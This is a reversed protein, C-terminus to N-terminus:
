SSVPIGAGECGAIMGEHMWASLWAAIPIEEDTEQEALAECAEGLTKKELLTKIFLFQLPTLAECRVQDKRRSVLIKQGSRKWESTASTKGERVEKAMKWIELVPWESVFLAASPQFLLKADEWAEAPVKAWASPEFAPGDFAHFSFAIQRELEALDKLYPYAKSLAHTELFEPFRAGVHSLNYDQSPYAKAYDKALGIFGKEGAIVHVAEYVESLSEHTRAIYGDAYIGLREEGSVGGQPNLPSAPLKSAESSSVQIRSKMWKQIEGLFSRDRASAPATWVPTERTEPRVGEFADYIRRATKCEELLRPWEPIHEDWEVLTSVQGCRKLTERYLNWVADIVPASHTDFLFTGMDTHGALHIQGIKEPPVSNVYVLPDFQHNVSNVYINNVDLLIGCGSRRAIESLFVWEPMESEKYTVYTSVNELLIERGLVEQVKEVRRVVHRVSEETFPLPLLDHLQNGGVGSWCLHDSVIFPQIRDALMKLRRLYKESLPDVSGISLSVGHLAVPYHERVKELIQVPRGGTDMYNESIAEFWDTEPWTELIIPYHKARLGAGCGRAPWKKQFM